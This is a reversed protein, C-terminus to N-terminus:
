RRGVKRLCASSFPWDAAKSCLRAKVPNNEIYSVVKRFHDANRVYRDFYEERWFQGGRKLIKNAEHATYSKHSHMLKDLEWGESRTLLFHSHNPMVVWSFLNYRLGDFKTLSDQVLMAVRNDKLFCEGYGQDLYKEIRKELAIQKETEELRSLEGQWRQIVKMPISDALHLTIFQPVCLGDFHPLYGRTHWGAERLEKKHSAKVLSMNAKIAAVGRLQSTGILSKVPVAPTGGAEPLKRAVSRLACCEQGAQSAGRM